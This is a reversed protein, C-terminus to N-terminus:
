VFAKYGNKIGEMLRNFHWDKVIESRYRDHKLSNPLDEIFPIHGIIPIRSLEYIVKMNDEEMDKEGPSTSSFVLGAIPLKRQKIAEITLMTHNITGLGTRAAIVVPLSVEEMVDILCRGKRNLPVYLGGAGETLLLKPRSSREKIEEIIAEEDIAAGEEEAALHPSSAKKFLYTYLKEEQIDPLLHYMEVDPAKWEGDKWEAGSQVPKYPIVDVGREKLGHALLLTTITKGADTDTGTIFIGPM